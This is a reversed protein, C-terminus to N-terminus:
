AFAIPSVVQILQLQADDEEIKMKIPSKREGVVSDNNNVNGSLKLEPPKHVSRPPSDTDLVCKSETNPFHLLLSGSV